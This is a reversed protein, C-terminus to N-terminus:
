SDGERAPPPEIIKEEELATRLKNEVSAAIQRITQWDGRVPKGTIAAYMFALEEKTFQM